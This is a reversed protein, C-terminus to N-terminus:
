EDGMLWEIAEEYNSFANLQYGRNQSCLAFFEVHDFHMPEYLIVTKQSFTKNHEYLFASLHWLDLVSMISEAKRMDIVINCNSSNEAMLAIELLLNVSEEYNLQGEPTARIFEKAKVIKIQTPMQIQKLTNMIM